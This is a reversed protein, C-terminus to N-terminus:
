HTDNWSEELRLYMQALKAEQKDIEVLPALMEQVKQLAEQADKYEGSLASMKALIDKHTIKPKGDAM